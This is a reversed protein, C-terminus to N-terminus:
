WIIDYAINDENSEVLVPILLETESGSVRIFARDAEELLDVFYQNGIAFMGNPMREIEDGSGIKFFTNKKKKDSIFNLERHIQGKEPIVRDSVEIGEKAYSFVPRSQADITYGRSNNEKMPPWKSKSSSLVAMGEDLEFELAANLPSLVQEEGRGLWMQTVDAFQGRWTKVLVNCRTDYTYHVGEPHGISLTHTMKGNSHQSFGRLHIVEDGGEVLLRNNDGRERWMALMDSSAVSHKPMDPGEAKLNALALWIEEFYTLKFAHSGKELTVIGREIGLGPEGLNHVVLQEDIYLDGGDDIITEFLYDGSVPINLIGEFVIGFHDQMGALDELNDLSEAEGTKVPTISDFNPIYDWEGEYLKYRLDDITVRNAGLHKIRMNRFAVPGHDGQIMMPARDVENDAYSEITPSPIEVDKHVLYGNHLVYEFRANSIKEGSEDFKPARFLVRYKQWLGPHKEAKALPIAGGTSKQKRSLDEWHYYIGGCDDPTLLDDEYSDRIQLEYRSMFYIGSNSGKPVLFEVEFELDGHDFSTFLHSGEGASNRVGKDEPRNILIGSGSKPELHWEKSIDSSVAGCVSWNQGDTVFSQMSSMDVLELPLFEAIEKNEPRHDATEETCSIGYISLVLVMFALKSYFPDIM